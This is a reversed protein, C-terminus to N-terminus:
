IKIQAPNLAGPVTSLKVQGRSILDQLWLIRCSLHRGKGVGQRMLIGKAGSNGTHLHITTKSVNMWAILRALMIADSVGSSCAYVEAEASSLSVLKHGRRPICCADVLLCRLVLYQGAHARIQLVIVTLTSRELSQATTNTSFEM